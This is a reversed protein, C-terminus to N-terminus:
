QVKPSRMHSPVTIDGTIGTESEPANRQDVPIDLDHDSPWGFTEGGFEDPSCLITATVDGPSQLLSFTGVTSDGDCQPRGAQLSDAIYLNGNPTPVVQAAFSTTAIALGAALTLLSKM